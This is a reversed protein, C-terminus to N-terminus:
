LSAPAAEDHVSPADAILENVAAMVMAVPLNKLCATTGLPCIRQFCPSCDLHLSVARAAKAHPPTHHPDSSGFIGVVPTALAAAAHMLGSDNSVVVRAAALWAFADVLKTKGCLDLCRSPTHCKSAIDQGLLIDKPGGVVVVTRREDAAIWENALAAFLDTPWQKAPGYEAGPCIVLLNERSSPGCAIADSSAAAQTPPPADAPHPLVMMPRHMGFRDISSPDIPRDALALYQDLMAPRSRQNPGVAAPVARRENILLYRSEGLMGRRVPIGALWPVLASKMSNPLVVATQYRGRFENATQRRLAWQLQGHAFPITHLTRVSPCCNYVPSVAPVAMVDVADYESALQHVLPLSMIADGVWQPAIVLAARGSDPKIATYKQV